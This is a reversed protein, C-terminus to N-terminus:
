AALLKFTPPNFEMGIYYNILERQIQTLLDSCSDDVVFRVPCHGWTGTSVFEAYWQRHNPNDANFSVWPRGHLQLKSM